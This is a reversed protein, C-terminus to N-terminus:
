QLIPEENDKHRNSPRCVGNRSSTPDQAHCSLGQACSCYEVARRGKSLGSLSCAEGETPIRLCKKSTLYRGCCLGEACDKSRVCNEMEQFIKKRKIKENSTPPGNTSPNKKNRTRKCQDNICRLGPCCAGDGHCYGRQSRCAVCVSPVTVHECYRRAPCDRDEKCTAQNTRRFIEASSRIKNNNNNRNHHDLAPDGACLTCFMGLCVPVMVCVWM